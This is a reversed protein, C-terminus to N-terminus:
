PAHLAPAKDFNGDTELTCQRLPSNEDCSHGEMCDVGEFAWWAEGEREREGERELWLNGCLNTCCLCSAPGQCLRSLLLTLVCPCTSNGRACAWSHESEETVGVGLSAERGCMISRVGWWLVVCMGPPGALGLGRAGAGLGTGCTDFGPM